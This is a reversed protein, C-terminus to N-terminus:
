MLLHFTEIELIISNDLLQHSEAKYKYNLPFHFHRSILIKMHVCFSNLLAVAALTM